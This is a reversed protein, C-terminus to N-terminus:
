DDATENHDASASGLSFLGCIVEGDVLLAASSYPESEEHAWLLIPGSVVLM